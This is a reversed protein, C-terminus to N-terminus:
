GVGRASMCLKCVRMSVPGIVRDACPATARSRSYEVL